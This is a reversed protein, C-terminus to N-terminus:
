PELDEGKLLYTRMSAPLVSSPPTEGPIAVTADDTSMLKAYVFYSIKDSLFSTNGGVFVVNVGNPHRSSPRCYAYSNKNRTGAEANVRYTTSPPELKPDQNESTSSPSAAWICGVDIEAYRYDPAKQAASRLVYDTADVNETFLITKDVPDKIQSKRMAINLRLDGSPNVRPDNTFRDFFVGNAPRDRPVASRAAAPSRSDAAFYNGLSSSTALPARFSGSGSDPTTGSEAGRCFPCGCRIIKKPPTRGSSGAPGDDGSSATDSGGATPTSSDGADGAPAGIGGAGEPAPADSSTTGLYISTSAVATDPMGSNAVYSLAAVSRSVTEDSPCVLMELYVDAVNAPGSRWAEHLPQRDLDSLLMVCWSVPEVLRTNPSHYPNGDNCILANMYGPYIGTNRESYSTTAQALSRLRQTCLSRRATERAGVALSTAVALIAGILTIVVLLEILSLARRRDFTKLARKSYQEKM